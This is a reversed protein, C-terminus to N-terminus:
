ILIYKSENDNKYTKKGINEICKLTKKLPNLEVGTQFTASSSM